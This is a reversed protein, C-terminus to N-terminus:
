QKKEFDFKGDDYAKWFDDARWWAEQIPWTCIRPQRAHERVATLGTQIKSPTFALRQLHPLHDIPNLDVVGTEAIRLLMIPMNCLPSLNTVNPCLDLSLVLLPMKKLPTIDAVNSRAANVFELPMNTLPTLDKVPCGAFSIGKLQLGQLPNLDSVKTNSLDLTTIRLDALVPLNSVSSGNLELCWGKGPSYEVLGKPTIGAESLRLLIATRDNRYSSKCGAAFIATAALYALLLLLKCGVGTCIRLGIM